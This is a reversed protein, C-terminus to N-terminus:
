RDGERLVYGVGRVTQLVRPEGLKRRLYGVFVGLSNSDTGFDYGWVALQIEARTLVEGPKRLFLELLGFETRTLGLPRDGRTATRAAPTLAIDGFALTEPAQRDDVRRLVAHLRALLERLAFPKAVYDDAGAELGEVRDDVEERATLMVIPVRNGAARLRRCLALGDLRPMGIDLLMADVQQHELTGLAEIGDEAALVEYDELELALRLADRVEAEDDVILVRGASM